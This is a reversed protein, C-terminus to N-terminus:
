LRLLQGTIKFAESFGCRTFFRLAQKNSERVGVGIRYISNEVAFQAAKKLMAQALNSGRWEESVGIQYIYGFKSDLVSAGTNEFSLFGVYQGQYEAVFYGEPNFTPRETIRAIFTPDIETGLYGLVKNYFATYAYLDENVRFSRLTMGIPIKYPQSILTTANCILKLNKYYTIEARLLKLLTLIPKNYSEVKVFLTSGYKGKLIRRFVAANLEGEGLLVLTELTPHKFDDLAVPETVQVFLSVLPSIQFHDYSVKNSIIDPASLSPPYGCNATMSNHFISAEWVIDNEIHGFKAM